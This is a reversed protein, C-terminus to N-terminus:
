KRGGEKEVKEDLSLSLSLSFLFFFFVGNLGTFAM